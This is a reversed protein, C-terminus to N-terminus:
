AEDKMKCVAIEAKRRNALGQIFKGQATTFHGIANCGALHNGANFERVAQSKCVNGRGVNYALSVLAAKEHESLKAHICPEIQAYYKPIDEVLFRTCQDKTYHDGVKVPRDYPTMGYCVTPLGKALMDPKATLWLGEWPAILAAAITAYSIAQRPSFM